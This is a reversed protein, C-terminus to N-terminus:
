TYVGWPKKTICLKIKWKRWQQKRLRTFPAERWNVMTAWNTAHIGVTRTVQTRNGLLRNKKIAMDTITTSAM